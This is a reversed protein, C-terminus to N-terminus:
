ANQEPRARLYPEGAHLKLMKTLAPAESWIKLDGPLTAVTAICALKAVLACVLLSGLILCLPRRSRQQAPEFQGLLLVSLAVALLLSLAASALESPSSDVRFALRLAVREDTGVAFLAGYM